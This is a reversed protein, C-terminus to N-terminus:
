ASAAAPAPRQVENALPEGREFRAVNAFVAAMKAEFADITAASVHPTLVVNRFRRLPTDGRPPETEFVDLGAGGLRGEALADVLAAEDVIPGRATNVIVAGRRMRAIARADILGRTADTLPAHLTVVDAQALLAEFRAPEVGLAAAREPALRAEPDVYLGRTGFARFREAAAQAIRGMGVYGITKGCLERAESRLTNVHWRGARLESDLWALRRLVALTLLVAHEAVGTTTGEPTIALRVEPPLADAAVTDHWGVGQHHVLRLRRAAAILSATLPTSAVIVVDAGAIKARREDDDERALTLVRRAPGAARRIAEYVAEPACSNYFVVTERSAM